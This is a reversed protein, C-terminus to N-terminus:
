ASERLRHYYNKYGESKAFRHTYTTFRVRLTRFVSFVIVLQLNSPLHVTFACAENKRCRDDGFYYLSFFREVYGCRM